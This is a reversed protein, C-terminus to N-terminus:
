GPFYYDQPTDDVYATENALHPHDASQGWGDGYFPESVM